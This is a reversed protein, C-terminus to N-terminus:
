VVPSRRTTGSGAVSDSRASPPSAASLRLHVADYSHLLALDSLHWKRIGATKTHTSPNPSQPPTASASRGGVRIGSTSHYILARRTRRATRAAVKQDRDRERGRARDDRAFDLSRATFCSKRLALALGRWKPRPSVRGPGAKRRPYVGASRRVSGPAGPRLCAANRTRGGGSEEAMKATRPRRVCPAPGILLASARGRVCLHWEMYLPYFPPRFAGIRTWNRGFLSFFDFFAGSKAKGMKVNQGEFRGPALALGSEAELVARNRGFEVGFRGGVYRGHAIHIRASRGGAASWLAPHPRRLVSLWGRAVRPRPRIPPTPPAPNRRTKPTVPM